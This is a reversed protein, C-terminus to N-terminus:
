VKVFWKKRWMVWAVAFMALNFVVAFLLSANEPSLPLTTIAEFLKEKLTMPTAGGAIHISQLMRAVIGSFVFLFLANMGYITLPLCARRTALLFGPPAEDLAAHFVALFVLSWGGTSLVFSPTWLNKNIPILIAGMWAGLGLILVGVALLGLSKRVRRVPAALYYGALVGLLLSATAPLTSVLGEPDWTQSSAWLHGGLVIRDLWAGFDNGPELRGAAVLGDAGTVPVLLMLLLYLSFLGAIAALAARWRGWLVIPAALMITLAIRQLVGPIRLSALHFAPIFNLLVGIFFIISARRLISRLLRLLVPHDTGESIKKGLSIAMSLGAAFLFFPFILDTFTCGNWESHALPAYIYKWSGPNNVLVMSAIAFGRFADLSALRQPSPPSTM